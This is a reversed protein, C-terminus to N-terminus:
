PWRRQAATAEAVTWMALVARERADNVAAPHGCAALRGRDIWLMRNPPGALLSADSAVQVIATGQESRLQSSRGRLWERFSADACAPLRDILLVQPEAWQLAVAFVLRLLADVSGWALPQDAQPALGAFALLEEAERTALRSDVGHFTGYLIANERVSLSPELAAAVDAILVVRGRAHVTGAFPRSLGAVCRLLESTTLADDGLVGLLQGRRVHLAGDRLLVDEDALARGLPRDPELSPRELTLGDLMLAVDGPVGGRPPAAHPQDRPPGPGAVVAARVTAVLDGGLARAAPAVLPDRTLWHPGGAVTRAAYLRYGDGDDAAQDLLRTIVQERTFPPAVTWESAIAVGPPLALLDIVCESQVADGDTPVLTGPALHDIQFLRYGLSELRRRLEAPSSGFVPLMGGNCELVIVPRQGRAFTQALGDLAAPENGEVDMKIVDIRDWGRARALADVSVRPVSKVVAGPSEEALALRTHIGTGMMAASAGAAGIAGHVAQLAVENHKAALDLLRAHRPHGDVSIVQAGTSAAPLSFTGLHSGLDVVHSDPGVFSLFARIVPEDIWGHGLLWRGVPDGDNPDLCFGVPPRGAVSVPHYVLGADRVADAVTATM